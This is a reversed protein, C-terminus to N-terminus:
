ETGAREVAYSIVGGSVWVPQMATFRWGQLDAVHVTFRGALPVAFEVEGNAGVVVGEQWLVPGDPDGNKTVRLTITLGRLESVAEGVLMLKSTVLAPVLGVSLESCGEQLAVTKSEYGPAGVTLERIDAPVVVTTSAAPLVEGSFALESTLVTIGKIPEKTRADFIGVEVARVAGMVIPVVQPTPGVEIRVRHEAYVPAAPPALGSYSVAVEWPGPALRTVLEGRDDAVAFVTAAPMRSWGLHETPVKGHLGPHARIPGADRSVLSVELGPLPAGSNDAVQITVPVLEPWPLALQGSPDADTRYLKVISGDESRIELKRVEHVWPVTACGDSAPVLDVFGVPLHARLRLGVMVQTGRYSSVKLSPVMSVPVVVDMRLGAIIELRGFYGRDGYASLAVRAGTPVEVDVGQGPEIRVVSQRSGRELPADAPLSPAEVTEVLLRAGVDERSLSVRMTVTSDLTVVVPSEGTLRFATPGYGRCVVHVPSEPWLLDAPQLAYQGVGRSLAILPGGEHNFSAVASVPAGTAKDVLRVVVQERAVALVVRVEERARWVEVVRAQYGEAAVRLSLAVSPVDEFVVVGEVDARAPMSWSRSEVDAPNRTMWSVRAGPIVAGSADVAVVRLEATRAVVWAVRREGPAVTLEEHLLTWPSPLHLRWVGAPLSLSGGEDAVFRHRSPGAGDVAVGSL